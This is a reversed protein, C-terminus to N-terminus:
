QVEAGPEGQKCLAKWDSISFNVFMIDVDMVNNILSSMIDRNDNTPNTVIAVTDVGANIFDLINPLFNAFQRSPFSRSGAVSGRNFEKEPRADIIADIRNKNIQWALEDVEIVRYIKM